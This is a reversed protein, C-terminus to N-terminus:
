NDYHLNTPLRLLPWWYQVFALLAKASRLLRRLLRKWKTESCLFVPKPRALFSVLALFHFLPSPFSPFAQLCVGRNAPSTSCYKFTDILKNWVSLDHVHCARQSPQKTQDALNLSPVNTILPPPIKSNKKRFFDHGEWKRSHILAHGKLFVWVFVDSGGGRGIWSLLLRFHFYCFPLTVWIVENM